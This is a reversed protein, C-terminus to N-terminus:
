GLPRALFEPFAPPEKQFHTEYRRLFKAPVPTQANELLSPLIGRAFFMDVEKKEKTLVKARSECEIFDRVRRYTAESLNIRGPEGSSEVRKAFNVSAGWVDFAFKKIGVVGAIVPGTHVGIRVQLCGLSSKPGIENVARQIEFCALVADVANSTSRVPLGAVAMYSDGITKMKEIGYRQVIRDFATFYQHLSVVLDAAAINETAATFGVFDTFIISVDDFQKPDVEGNHLLEEAVTNPLINRLLEDAIRKQHEVQGLAVALEQTRRQEEDRLRKKELSAGVRARLLLPNFPKPLYDEAGLEICQVVKEVDDMASIMIVPLHSISPDAKMRALVESGTMGPMMFDLLVLEFAQRALLDLAQPGDEASVTQYGERELRRCLVDRNAQDDDVVLLRGHASVKPSGSTQANPIPNHVPLESKTSGAPVAVLVPISTATTLATAERLRTAAVRIKGIDTALSPEGAAAVEVGEISQFMAALSSRMMTELAALQAEGAPIASSPLAKEIIKQLEQAGVRINSLKEVLLTFGDETCDELLMESYGLLHNIPTLLDHRLNSSSGSSTDQM